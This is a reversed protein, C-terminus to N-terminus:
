PPSLLSSPNEKAEELEGMIPHLTGKKRMRGGQRRSWGAWGVRGAVGAEMGTKVGLRLQAIGDCGGAREYKVVWCSREADPDQTNQLAGQQLSPFRWAMAGM